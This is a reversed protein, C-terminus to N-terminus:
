SSSYLDPCPGFQLAHHGSLQISGVTAGPRMEGLIYQTGRLRRHSPCFDQKVGHPGLTAAMNVDLGNQNLGDFAYESVLWYVVFTSHFCLLNFPSVGLKFFHNTTASVSRPQTQRHSGTVRRPFGGGRLVVIMM